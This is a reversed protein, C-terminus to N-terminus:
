HSSGQHLHSFRLLHAIPMNWEFHQNQVTSIVRLILPVSLLSAICFTRRVQM